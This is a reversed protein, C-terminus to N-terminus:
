ASKAQYAAAPAERDRALSLLLRRVGRWDDLRFRAAASSDGVAVTVAAVPVARFMDEASRDGGIALLADGASAEASIREAVFGKGIGRVRVEVIKKGEVIELPQNVLMDGLLSRLDRAQRAGFDKAAARYHWALSASRAEVSTGPTSAAFQEFIRRVPGMWDASLATASEWADGPHRRRWFGHEAWLSAGLDGFWQELFERPRGSVLEVRIGPASALQQLLTLLERDPVALEPFRAPPVLTGDYDLLLRLKQARRTEVLAASLPREPRRPTLPTAPPRVAHLRALFRDGWAFVDDACVRQRLARMRVHREESEMDLSRIISDALADTDYPNVTVAGQLESAAGAFESLVLVGDEDIRSAAFEKAVLNMGDRLPTVLLVDASRYLAVLEESSVARNVYHVPLSRLTAYKGNLAGVTEEVQRRFQRYEPVDTRTPVAIQMYRVSDRLAPDRDFLRALAELRHPIGKTYDLRDVGLVIRREAADQRIAEVRRAVQPDGARTAFAAADIGMPFVGVSTRRGARRVGDVDAEVGELDAVSDLFNRAYGATHFGILDAGLLGALIERRSPLIRFVDAAPFPIHLFFGIPASPLRQRLLAPVLMLHYDHVWITDGPRYERAVDAAFVENAEQYERWGGADAPVRDVAYHFLPWLVRNAFGHCYRNVLNASLDIARLGRAELRVDRARRAEEEPAVSGPWGLWLSPGRRQYPHLGSALGGCSPKVVVGDPAMGITVPLRNAVILLRSARM